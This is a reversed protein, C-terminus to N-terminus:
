LTRGAKGRGIAPAEIGSKMSRPVKGGATTQLLALVPLMNKDVGMKAFRALAPKIRMPCRVLEATWIKTGSDINDATPAEGGKKFYYHIIPGYNETLEKDSHATSVAGFIVNNIMRPNMKAGCSELKEVGKVGQRHFNYAREFWSQIRGPQHREATLAWEEPLSDLMTSLKERDAAPVNAAVHSPYPAFVKQMVDAFEGRHPVVGAELLSKFAQLNKAEICAGLLGFEYNQTSSRNDRVIYTEPCGALDHGTLPWGAIIREHLIQARVNQSSYLEENLQTNM